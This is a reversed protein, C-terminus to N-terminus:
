DHLRPLAFPGLADLWQRWAHPLCHVWGASGSVAAEAVAACRSRREELDSKTVMVEEAFPLRELDRRAASKADSRVDFVFLAGDSSVTFLLTDDFFLRMGTVAGSHSRVENFDGNLPVRYSRVAGLMTSAFMAKGSQM